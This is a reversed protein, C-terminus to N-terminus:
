GTRKMIYSVLEFTILVHNRRRHGVIEPRFKCSHWSPSPALMVAVPSLFGSVRQIEPRSTSKVARWIKDYIKM